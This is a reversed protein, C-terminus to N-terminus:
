CCSLCMTNLRLHYCEKHVCQEKLLVRASQSSQTATNLRVNLNFGNLVECQQKYIKWVMAFVIYVYAIDKIM